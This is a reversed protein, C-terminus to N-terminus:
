GRVFTIGESIKVRKRNSVKFHAMGEIARGNSAPTNRTHTKIYKRDAKTM